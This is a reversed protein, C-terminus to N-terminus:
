ASPGAAPVFQGLGFHAAYGLAIPGRIENAFHLKLRAFRRAPDDTNARVRRFERLPTGNIDERDPHVDILEGINLKSILERAVDAATQTPKPFRPCVFPTTSIWERATAFMPVNFDGPVGVGVVRLQFNKQKEGYGMRMERLSELASLEQDTFATPAYVTIHSLHTRDEVSSSPLYFAHQHGQLPQGNADHGSLTPSVIGRAKLRGFLAKRFSEAFPLTDITRPLVKGDILFRVVSFSTRGRRTTNM